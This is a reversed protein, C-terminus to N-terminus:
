VNVDVRISRRFNTVKKVCNHYSCERTFFSKQELAESLFIDHKFIRIHSKLNKYTKVINKYKQGSFKLLKTKERIMNAVYKSQNTKFSSM